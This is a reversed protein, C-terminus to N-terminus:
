SSTVSRILVYDTQTDKGLIFHQTGVQQFDWRQYFNLARFNKEWVGLWLPDFGHAAAYDICARMLRSGYGKGLEHQDVYLRSLEIPRAAKIEPIASHEKLYAYGISQWGDSANLQALFFISHTAALQGRITETSFATTLYQTMDAPDNDAAFTETFTRKGLDVLTELDQLTARRILVM